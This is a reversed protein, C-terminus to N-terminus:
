FLDFLGGNKLVPLLKMLQLMRKASDLKQRRQESLLPRLAALLRTVDDEQNAMNLLPLLKTIKSLSDPSMLSSEERREPQAAPAQEQNLGLMKGLSQVQSLAEPDSM